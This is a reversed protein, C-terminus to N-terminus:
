KKTIRQNNKSNLRKHPYVLIDTVQSNNQDITDHTGILLKPRPPFEVRQQIIDQYLIHNYQHEIPSNSSINNEKTTDKNYLKKKIM